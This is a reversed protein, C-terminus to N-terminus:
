IMRPENSTVLTAVFVALNPATIRTLRTTLTPGRFYGPVPAGFKVARKKSGVIVRAVEAGRVALHHEKIVDRDAFPVLCLM